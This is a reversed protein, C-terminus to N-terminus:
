QRCRFCPYYASDTVNLISAMKRTTDAKMQEFLSELNTCQLSFGDFEGDKKSSIVWRRMGSNSRRWQAPTTGKTWSRLLIRALCRMRRFQCILFSSFTFWTSGSLVVESHHGRHQEQPNHGGSTLLAYTLWVCDCGDNVLFFRQLFLFFDLCNSLSYVGNLRTRMQVKWQCYLYNGLCCCQRHFCNWLKCVEKGESERVRKEEDDIDAVGQAPHTWIQNVREMRTLTVILRHFLCCPGGRSSDESKSSQQQLSTCRTVM